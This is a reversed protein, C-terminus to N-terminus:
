ARWEPATTSAIGAGCRPVRYGLDTTTPQPSYWRWQALSVDRLCYRLRGEAHRIPRRDLEPMKGTGLRAAARGAAPRYVSIQYVGGNGANGARHGCRGGM